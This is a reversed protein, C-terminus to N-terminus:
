FTTLQQQLSTEQHVDRRIAVQPEGRRDVEVEVDAIPLSFSTLVLTEGEDRVTTFNEEAHGVERILM